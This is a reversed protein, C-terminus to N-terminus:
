KTPRRTKLNFFIKGQLLIGTKLAPIVPVEEVAPPRPLGHPATPMVEPSSGLARFIVGEKGAGPSQGM